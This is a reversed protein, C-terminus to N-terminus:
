PSSFFVYIVNFFIGNRNLIEKQVLNILTTRGNEYEVDELKKLYRSYITSALDLIHM